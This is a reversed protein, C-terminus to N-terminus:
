KSERKARDDPPVQVNNGLDHASDPKDDADNVNGELRAAEAELGRHNVEAFGLRVREWAPTSGKVHIVVIAGFKVGGNPSYRILRSCGPHPPGRGWLPALPPIQFAPPCFGGGCCLFHGVQLKRSEKVGEQWDVLSGTSRTNM